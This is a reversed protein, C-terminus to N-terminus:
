PGFLRRFNEEVQGTIEALPVARLEAMFRYVAPLNAPHNLPKGTRPDM